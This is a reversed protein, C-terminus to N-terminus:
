PELRCLVRLGAALRKLRIDERTSNRKILYVPSQVKPMAGATTVEALRARSSATENHLAAVFRPLFLVAMGERCLALGTEMLEIEYAIHRPLRHDPWMDLTRVGSPAGHVETVPVAFPLRALEVGTFAGERTFLGMQLSAVRLFEIGARPVPIYSIGVDIVREFLKAEIEGPVYERVALPVDCMVGSALRGLLYSSFVEFTGIRLKDESEGDRRQERLMDVERLVAHARQYLRLGADTITIGRGAPIILETGLETALVRMSKSLGSHTLHLLDAAKRLAGTEVVACFQKLRDTEM